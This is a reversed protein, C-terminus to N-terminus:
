FQVRLTRTFSGAVKVLLETRQTDSFGLGSLQEDANGSVELKSGVIEFVKRHDNLRNDLFENFFGRPADEAKAGELIFFYHKNGVAQYDWHNPSLMMMKVPVFQQTKLDWVERSTAGTPLKHEISFAGDKLTVVAVTIWEKHKLPRAVEYQYVTGDFEIEARFGGRTPQRLQWNHIKCIYRGEPMCDLRPFTINEVPVYGLPAPEVYDVDQVGGSATDKRHNWGVRRNNGYADNIGSSEGISSSPMFVHLDMLSANRKDYNWQHSFRFVGTVSGGRAQVAQRMDSDAIGGNYAWAFGNDWKFLQGATPDTPATLTMLNGRHKNEFMVEISNVKPLVNRIFDEIGISEVKDLNQPKTPKTPAIDDFADGALQKRISRDVFLVDNVPVDGIVAYRRDLASTLGLDAITTKAKDIMAQTVLATPRKYNAPAVKTEFAKVARELDVGESLDVLLTGIVSNRIGSIAAGAENLVYWLFQDLRKDTMGVTKQKFTAFAHVMARHENGRYLSGQNILELVTQIAEDTIETVARKLTAFATRQKGLATAIASKARVFKAPINVHFHTWTQPSMGLRQEFTKDTGAHGEYHLFPEVIPKNHLVERMRSAVIAYTDDDGIAAMDWITQIKGDVIAVVNGMTRIFQRCCSCDHERRARFIPNTGEPFANQYAEWLTDGDVDVRFLSHKAMEAFQAAVAHKILHFDSM